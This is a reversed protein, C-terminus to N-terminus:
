CEETSKKAKCVRLYTLLFFESNPLIELTFKLKGRTFSVLFRSFSFNSFTYPPPVPFLFVPLSFLFCTPSFVLCSFLFCSYIDVTKFQFFFNAYQVFNFDFLEIHYGGGGVGPNPYYISFCQLCSQILLSKQM